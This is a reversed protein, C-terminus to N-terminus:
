SKATKGEARASRFWRRRKAQRQKKRQHEVLRDLRVLRLGYDYICSGLLVIRLRDEDQKTEIRLLQEMFLRNEQGIRRGQDESLKMHGEHKLLIYEHYLILEELHHEFLQGLQKDMGSQIYHGGILELVDEGSRLTRLMHKYIVIQRADVQKIKSMKRREEEFLAFMEGCKAVGEQFRQKKQKFSHETLADSIATRMLLSLDAFVERVKAEFLKRYNPPAITVNVVLASLIGVLIVAFRNVAFTIGDGPAEMIVLVTVLTLGISSGMKLKLCLAIVIVAVLGISFLDNGLLQSSAFAILAGLTNAQIQERVHRWTGYVSPQMIIISAVAALVAPEMGLLRCILLSLSIAFGTKIVRAGLTMVNEEGTQAISDDVL